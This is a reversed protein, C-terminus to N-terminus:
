NKDTVKSLEYRLAEVLCSFWPLLPLSDKVMWFPNSIRRIHQPCSPVSTFHIGKSHSQQLHMIMSPLALYSYLYSYSYSTVACITCTYM